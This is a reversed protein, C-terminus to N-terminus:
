GRRPELPEEPLERPSASRSVRHSEPLHGLPMPNLQTGLATQRRGLHRPVPTVPAPSATRPTSPSADLLSLGGWPLLGLLRRGHDQCWWGVLLRAQYRSLLRCGAGASTISLGPAMAPVAAAPM